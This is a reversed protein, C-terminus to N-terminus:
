KAFNGPSLADIQTALDTFKVSGIHDIPMYSGDRVRVM